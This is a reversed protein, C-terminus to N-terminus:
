AAPKDVLLCGCVECLIIDDMRKIEVLRQPPIRSFCYGCAGGTLSSVGVGDRIKRIREYHDHVPKKLKRVIKEREHLYTIEEEQTSEQREKMEVQREILNSKLQKIKEKLDGYENQLDDERAMMELQTRESEAIKQKSQEIETSIADYERTTKVSFIVSQSKRLQDRATDFIRNQELKQSHIAKLEEEIGHVQLQLKEIENELSTIQEPLDGKEAIIEMLELDIEQLRILLALDELV